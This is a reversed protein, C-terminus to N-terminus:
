GRRTVRRARFKGMAVVHDWRRVLHSTTRHIRKARLTERLVASSRNSIGGGGMVATIEDVFGAKLRSGARLLLEYDGAIAFSEDYLGYKEYLARSHISGVHAVNMYRRFASWRWEHGIVRISSREEYRVRSSVYELGPHDKLHSAYIRLADPVYADDAGLFSFYRGRAAAIGKNWAQYIGSDPESLWYDIDDSREELIKQTGDTSSADIVILEFDDFTQAAISDLTLGITSKANFTATIISILPENCASRGNNLRCGGEIPVIRRISASLAM